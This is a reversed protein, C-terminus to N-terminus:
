IENPPNLSLQGYYGAVEHCRVMTGSEYSFENYSMGGSKLIYCNQTFCFRRLTSKIHIERDRGKKLLHFDGFSLAKFLGSHPIKGGQGTHFLNFNCNIGGVM